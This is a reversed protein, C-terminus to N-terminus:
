SDSRNEDTGRHTLVSPLSIESQSLEYVVPRAVCYLLANSAGRLVEDSAQGYPRRQTPAQRHAFPSSSSSRERPLALGAM